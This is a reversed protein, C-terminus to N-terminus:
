LIGKKDKKSCGQLQRWYDWGHGITGMWTQYDGDMDLLGWGHRITGMWTQYNGDMDLLEWADRPWHHVRAGKQM